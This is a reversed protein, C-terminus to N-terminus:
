TFASPIISLLILLATSANAPTCSGSCLDSVHVPDIFNSTRDDLALANIDAGVTNEHNFPVANTDLDANTLEAPQCQERGIWVAILDLLLNSSGILM